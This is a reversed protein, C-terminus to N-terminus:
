SLRKNLIITNMDTVKTRLQVNEIEIADNTCPPLLM